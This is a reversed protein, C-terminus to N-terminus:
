PLRSSSERKRSPSASGQRRTSRTPPAGGIALAADRDVGPERTRLGDVDDAVFPRAEVGGRHGVRGVGGVELLRAPTAQEQDARVHVLHDVVPGAVLDGQDLPALRRCRLVDPSARADPGRKKGSLRPAKSARSWARSWGPISTTRSSWGRWSTAPSRPWSSGRAATAPPPTSARGAPRTARTADESGPGKGSHDPFTAPGSSSTGLARADDPVRVVPLSSAVLAVWRRM